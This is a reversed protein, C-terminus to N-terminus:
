VDVRSCPLVCSKGPQPEAVVAPNVLIKATRAAELFASDIHDSISHSVIYVSLIAVCRCYSCEGFHPVNVAITAGPPHNFAEDAANIAERMQAETLTQFKHWVGVSFWMVSMSM